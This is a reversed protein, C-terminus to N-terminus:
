TPGVHIRLGHQTRFQLSTFSTSFLILRFLIKQYIHNENGSCKLKFSSGTDTCCLTFSCKFLIYMYAYMCVCMCVYVSVYMCVYVCVYMSVYICVHICNSHMCAYMIYVYMHVYM